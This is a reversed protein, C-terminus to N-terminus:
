EKISWIGQKGSIESSNNIEEIVELKWAYGTRNKKNDYIFENEYNIKDNIEKNLKICDIIKVKALLRSSPYELNLNKFKQM